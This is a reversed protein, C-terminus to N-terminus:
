GLIELVKLKTFAQRHGFRRRENKKAKFTFGRIKKGRGQSLVQCVVKAGEVYPTGIRVDDDTRIMLVSGLEVQEGVEKELKEVSVVDNLAVRVQKGGTHVIAYMAEDCGEM